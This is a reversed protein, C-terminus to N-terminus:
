RGAEDMYSGGWVAEYETLAGTNGPNQEAPKDRYEGMDTDFPNTEDIEDSQQPADTTLSPSGDLGDGLEDGAPEQMEKKIDASNDITDGITAGGPLIGGTQTEENQYRGGAVDGNAVDLDDNLIGAYWIGTGLVAIFCFCSAISATKWIKRKRDAVYRDRRELVSEAMEEYNKM